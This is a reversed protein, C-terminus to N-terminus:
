RVFCASALKGSQVCEVKESLTEAPSTGGKDLSKLATPREGARAARETAVSLTWGGGM